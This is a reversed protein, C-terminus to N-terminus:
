TKEGTYLPLVLTVVLGGMGRATDASSDTRNEVSITGGAAETFRRSIALGIGTGTSKSTFFPDFVRKLNKESIGRGRDFIRIVAKREQKNGTIGISAGIEGAPSGSEVANRLINELVSRIRNEDAFVLAQSANEEIKINNFGCIRQATESLLSVIDLPAQEGAPERLYDNVRYILASLRDVEQNIIALEDKGKEGSIKELIGTQLRISLLPNKIEHALTGAATGLVVLNHQGEIKERYERNRLYLRRIYFLLILVGLESLPFLVATLTRTKWYAPHTIDIYFYRGQNQRPETPHHEQRPRAPAINPPINMRPGPPQDDPPGMRGFHFVFKVSSGRHEPITYRGFRDRGSDVLINKDFVPPVKGWQYV